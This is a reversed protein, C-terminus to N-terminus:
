SAAEVNGFSKTRARLAKRAADAWAQANRADRQLDDAMRQHTKVLAHLQVASLDRMAARDANTCPKLSM